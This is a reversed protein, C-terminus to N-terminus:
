SPLALLCIKEFCFQCCCLVSFVFTLCTSLLIPELPFGHQLLLCSLNPGAMSAVDGCMVEKISRSKAQLRRATLELLSGLKWLGNIAIFHCQSKLFFSFNGTKLATQTVQPSRGHCCNLRLHFGPHKNLNLTHNTRSHKRETKCIDLLYNKHSDITNQPCVGM